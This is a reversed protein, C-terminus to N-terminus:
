WDLISALWYFALVFHSNFSGALFLTYWGFNDVLWNGTCALLQHWGFTATVGTWQYDEVILEPVTECIEDITRAKNLNLNDDIHDDTVEFSPIEKNLDTQLSKTSYITYSKLCNILESSYFPQPAVLVKKIRQILIDDSLM